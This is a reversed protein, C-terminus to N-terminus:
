TREVERQTYGWIQLLIFGTVMGGLHAMNAIGGGGGVWGLYFELAGLFIVFYKAKMPFIFYIYVPLNPFILGFALLIGYIAGSAGLMPADIRRQLYTRVLEKSREVYQQNQPEASWNSQLQEVEQALEGPATIMYEDAFETFEEYSPSSLYIDVDEELKNLQWASFALFLVSAGLGCIFYYLLFKKTNWISELPSGFMWLVFMNIAIHWLGGHLFIATIFQYWSFLDSRFYHLGFQNIIYESNFAFTLIFALFNTILLFKVGPTLNRINSAKITETDESM